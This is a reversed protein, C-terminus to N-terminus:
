KRHLFKWKIFLILAVFAAQGPIVLLSFRGELELAGDAYDYCLNMLVGPIRGELPRLAERLCATDAPDDLGITGSIRLRLHLTKFLRISLRLLIRWNRLMRKARGRKKKRKKRKKGPKEKKDAKGTFEHVKIGMLYFVVGLRPAAKVKLFGFAWRAEAAGSPHADHIAGEARFQFPMLLLILLLIGLIAFIWLLITLAVGM